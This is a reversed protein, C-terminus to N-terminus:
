ELASANCHMEMHHLPSDKATQNAKFMTSDVWIKLKNGHRINFIKSLRHIGVATKISGKERYVRNVKRWVEKKRCKWHLSYGLPMSLSGVLFGLMVAENGVASRMGTQRLNVFADDQDGTIQVIAPSKMFNAGDRNGVPIPGEPERYPNFQRHNPPRPPFNWRSNTSPERPPGSYPMHGNSMRAGNRYCQGSIPPLPPRWCEGINDRPVIKNRDRDRYFNSSDENRMHFRNPHSPPPLDRRSQIQRQQPYSFQNSPAPHPPRVHLGKNFGEGPHIRNSGQASLYSTPRDNFSCNNINDPIQRPVQAEFDKNDRARHHMSDLNASKMRSLGPQKAMSGPQNNDFNQSSPYINSNPGNATSDLGAHSFSSPPHPYPPPPPPHAPSRPLPACALPANKQQQSIFPPGYHTDSHHHSLQTRDKTLNSTFGIEEECYPAVDEMELEGDVDELILSRKEVAPILSREGDLNEVNHEPTVAEFSEGDSDSGVDDDRLMRPMCFGPLQFSSNSGYEDVLMGEMERIPDDFARENRLPRRSGAKPYSVCLADLERIHHHIIPDPLIKREQWVRLVKLCQRHNELSSSGPPAAALLLRPLVAQIVSPYIGCDGKMGRSCQAISDVLFFLDVKKHSNPERELNQTLVEVVKFAFGFKACDIAVRTARGISEKTGTLSRITAEFSSLTEEGKSNSKGTLKAKECNLQVDPSCSSRNEIYNNDTAAVNGMSSSPPPTKNVLRMGNILSPSQTVPFGELPEDCISISNSLCQHHGISLVKVPNGSSMCNSYKTVPSCEKVFESKHSDQNNNALSFYNVSNSKDGEGVANDVLVRADFDLMSGANEKQELVELSGQPIDPASREVAADLESSKIKCHNTHSRVLGPASHDLCYKEESFNQPDLQVHKSDLELPSVKLCKFGAGETHETSDKCVEPNVVDSSYSRFCDSVTAYEKSDIVPTETNSAAFVESSNSKSENNIHYEALASGLEILAKNGMLLESHEANSSCDGNRKSNVTLPFSSVCQIDEAVNASMAELARHLRKSPPLSAEGDVFNRTELLNKGGECSQAKKPSAPSLPMSVLDIEKPVSESNDPDGVKCNLPESAESALREAVELIKEEKHAMTGEKKETPASREMRVRARKFLPLHEDGDERACREAFKENNSPSVSGNRAEANSNATGVDDSHRKRNPGRKKKIIAANTQFEPRNNLETEEENNNESFHDVVMPKCHSEVTSGNNLSPSDSDMTMVESENEEVSNSVSAPSDADYGESDDSSKMIRASRRLSRDKSAATGSHRSRRSNNLSPLTINQSGKADIKSSSRLRRSSIRGQVVSNRSQTLETKSRTSDTTSVPMETVLQAEELQREAVCLADEAAAAAAAAETLSNLDNTAGTCLSQSEARLMSDEDNVCNTLSEESNNENNIIIETTENVQERKKLKEFSIIIENVARVFDAGKGHRKGLLSSKREETFEEVDAPNCFGIQQTGFFHVLVKKRDAPYGWKEPDNVTAPWAPFGKVKALVLDGVKWERRTTAAAAKGVGKRRSPAM